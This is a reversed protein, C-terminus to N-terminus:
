LNMLKNKDRVQYQGHCYMYEDTMEYIDFYCTDEIHSRVYYTGAPIHTGIEYIGPELVYHYKFNELKTFKDRIYPGVIFLGISLIGIMCISTIFIILKDSKLFKKM